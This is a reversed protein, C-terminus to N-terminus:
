PFKFPWVLKALSIYFDDLEHQENMNLEDKLLLSPIFDNPNVKMYFGNVVSITAKNAESSELIDTSDQSALDVENVSKYTENEVKEQLTCKLLVVIAILLRM